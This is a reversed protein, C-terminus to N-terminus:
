IMFMNVAKVPGNLIDIASSCIFHEFVFFVDPVVAERLGNNWSFAFVLGGL